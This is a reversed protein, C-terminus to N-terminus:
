FYYKILYKTILYGIFFQLIKKLTHQLSNGIKFSNSFDLPYLSINLIYFRKNLYLQMFQYVLFVTIIWKYKVALAGLIYHSAQYIIPIKM